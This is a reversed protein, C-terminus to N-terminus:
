SPDLKFYLSASFISLCLSFFFISFQLLAKKGKVSKDLVDERSTIEYWLMAFVM